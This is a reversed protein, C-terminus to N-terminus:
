FDKLGRHNQNGELRSIVRESILKRQETSLMDRLKLANALRGDALSEHLTRLEKAKEEIQESSASPSAFLEALEIAGARLKERTPRTQDMHQKFLADLSKEQDKSADIYNFLRKEFHTRLCNEWESDILAAGASNKAEVPDFGKFGIAIMTVALGFVLTQATKKELKM